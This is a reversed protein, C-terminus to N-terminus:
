FTARVHMTGYGGSHDNLWNSRTDWSYGGSFIIQASRGIDFAVFPGLRVADFRDNGLAAVEPGISIGPMLLYGLKGMVFYSSYASSITGLGFVYWRDSLQSFIEGQGKIGWKTGRVKALPDPNDHHEVNPGIYGTLRTSGIFTQYGIMLEAAQFDVSQSFGPARNYEYNGVGGRVRFLWGPTNLNRNFAWVGGVDGFVADPSVALGGFINFSPGWVPAALAPAKRPLDAAAAPTAIGLLCAGIAALAAVKRIM